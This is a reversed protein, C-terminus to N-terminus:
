RGPSVRPTTRSGQATGSKKVSFPGKGATRKSGPQGIKPARGQVTAARLENAQKRATKQPLEEDGSYGKHWPREGAPPTRGRGALSQRNKGGTGKAAGKKSVVRKGRRESNGPM